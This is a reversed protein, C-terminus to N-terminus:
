PAKWYILQTMVYHSSVAKLKSQEKQCQQRVGKDIRREAGVVVLRLELSLWLLLHQVVEVVRIHSSSNILARFNELHKLIVKISPCTRRLLFPIILVLETIVCDRM